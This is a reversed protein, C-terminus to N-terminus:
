FIEYIGIYHFWSPNGEDEPEVGAESLAINKKNAQLRPRFLNHKLM